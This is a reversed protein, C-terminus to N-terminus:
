DLAPRPYEIIKYVRTTPPHLRAVHGRVVSSAYSFFDCSGCLHVKGPCNHDYYYKLVEDAVKSRKSKLEAYTMQDYSHRTREREGPYGVIKIMPLTRSHKNAMHCKVHSTSISLYQCKGRVFHGCLHVKQKKKNQPRKYLALVEKALQPDAQNLQSYPKAVFDSIKYDKFGPYQTIKYGPHKENPHRSKMHSSLHQSSKTMFRCKGSIFRTCVHVFGTMREDRYLDLVRQAGDKDKEELQSFTISELSHVNSNKECSRAGTKVTRKRWYSSAEEDSEDDDDDDDDDEEEEEEEAQARRSQDGQKLVAARSNSADDEDSKVTPNM